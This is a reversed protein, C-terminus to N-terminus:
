SGVYTDATEIFVSISFSTITGTQAVTASLLGTLIRVRDVRSIRSLYDFYGVSFPETGSSRYTQLFEKYNEYDIPAAPNVRFTIITFPDSYQCVYVSNGLSPTTRIGLNDTKNMGGSRATGYTPSFFTTPTWLKSSTGPTNQLCRSTTIGASGSILCTGLYQIDGDSEDSIFVHEGVVIASSINPFVFAFTGETPVTTSGTGDLVRAKSKGFALIMNHREVTATM